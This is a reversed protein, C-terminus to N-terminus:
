YLRQEQKFWCSQFKINAYLKLKSSKRQGNLIDQRELNWKEIYAKELCEGFAKGACINWSVLGQSERNNPQLVHNRGGISVKCEPCYHVEVAGGCKLM